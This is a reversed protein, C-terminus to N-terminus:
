FADVYIPIDIDLHKYTFLAFKVLDYM